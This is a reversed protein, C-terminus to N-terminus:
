YKWDDCNLFQAATAWHYQTRTPTEVTWIGSNDTDGRLLRVM